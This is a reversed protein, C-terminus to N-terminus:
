GPVTEPLEGDFGCLEKADMRLELNRFLLFQAELLFLGGAHGRLRQRCLQSPLQTLADSDHILVNRCSELQLELSDELIRALDRTWVHDEIEVPVVEVVAQGGAAVKAAHDLLKM